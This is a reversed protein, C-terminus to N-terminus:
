AQELGAVRCDLLHGAAAPEARRRRQAAVERPPEADRRPLVARGEAARGSPRPTVGAPARRRGRPVLFPRPLVADRPGPRPPPRSDPAGEPPAVHLLPPGGPPHEGGAQLFSSRDLSYLTAPGHPTLTATRPVGGLLAVDGFGEGAELTRVVRGDIVIDVAGAAVIWYASGREGQRIVDEGGGLHAPRLLLALRRLDTASLGEFAPVGRLLAVRAGHGRPRRM